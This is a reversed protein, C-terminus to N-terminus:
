FLSPPPEIGEADDPRDMVDDDGDGSSGPASRRAGGLDALLATESRAAIVPAALGEVWVRTRHGPGRDAGTIPEIALVRDARVFRGLGLALFGADVM